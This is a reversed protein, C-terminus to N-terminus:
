APQTAGTASPLTETIPLKITFTTGGGIASAVEIHGGHNEIIGYSVSLGLGTGKAGKTSFFPDFIKQLNEESIGHGTDTIKTYVSNEHLSIGTQITLEGGSPMAQSANILVNMFVQEIQSPDIFIKPLAEDYEKHVTIDHFSTHHEVLAM